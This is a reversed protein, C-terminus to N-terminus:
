IEISFCIHNFYFAKKYITLQLDTWKKSGHPKIGILNINKHQFVFNTKKLVCYENDIYNLLKDLIIFDLTKDNSSLLMHNHYLTNDDFREQIWINKIKKLINCIHIMYIDNKNDDKWIRKKNEYKLYKFLYYYEEETIYEQLLQYSKRVLQTMNSKSKKTDIGINFFDNQYQYLIVIDAARKNDKPIEFKINFPNNLDKYFDKLYDINIPTIQNVPIISIKQILNTNINTYKNIINNVILPNTKLIHYITNEFNLGNKRSLSGAIQSINM